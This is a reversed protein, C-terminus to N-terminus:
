TTYAFKHCRTKGSQVRVPLFSRTLPRDPRVVTCSQSNARLSESAAPFSSTMPELTGDSRSSSFEPCESFKSKVRKNKQVESNMELICSKSAVDLHLDYDASIYITNCASKRDREILITFRRSVTHSIHPIYICM